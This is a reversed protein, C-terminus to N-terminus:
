SCFSGLNAATVLSSPNQKSLLGYFPCRLNNKLRFQISVYIAKRLNCNSFHSTSHKGNPNYGTRLCYRCSVPLCPFTKSRRKMKDEKLKPLGELHRYSESIKIIPNHMRNRTYWDIYISVETRLLTGFNMQQMFVRVVVCWIIASCLAILYVCWEILRSSNYM